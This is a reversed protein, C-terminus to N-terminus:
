IEFYIVKQLSFKINLSVTGQCLFLGRVNQVKFRRRAKKHDFYDLPWGTALM